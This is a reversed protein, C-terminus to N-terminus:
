VNQLCRHCTMTRTVTASNSQSGLRRLIQCVRYWTGPVLNNSVKEVVIPHLIKSWSTTGTIMASVYMKNTHTSSEQSEIWQSIWKCRTCKISIALKPNCPLPGAWEVQLLCTKLKQLEPSSILGSDRWAKLDAMDTSLCSIFAYYTREWEDRLSQRRTQTHAPLSLDIVDMCIKMKTLKEQVRAKQIM